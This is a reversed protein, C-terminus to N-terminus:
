NFLLCSSVDENLNRVDDQLSRLLKSLNRQHGQYSVCRCGHNVSYRNSVICQEWNCIQQTCIDAHLVNNLEEVDRAPNDFYAPLWRMKGAIKFVAGTVRFTLLYTRLTINSFYFPFLRRSKPYFRRSLFRSVVRCGSCTDIRNYIILRYSLLTCKRDFHLDSRQM